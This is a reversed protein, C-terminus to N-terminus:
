SKRTAFFTQIYKQQEIFSEKQKKEENLVKFFYKIKSKDIHKKIIQRIQSRHLKDALHGRISVIDKKIALHNDLIFCARDIQGIHYLSDFLYLVTYDDYSIIKKKLLMDTLLVVENYKKLAALKYIKRKKDNIKKYVMTDLSQFLLYLDYIIKSMFAMSSDVPNLIHGNLEIQAPNNIWFNLDYRETEKRIKALLLVEENTLLHSFNFTREILKNIDSFLDRVDGGIAMMLSNINEYYLYSDNLCKNQLGMRIDDLSLTYSRIKDQFFSPSRRNNKMVLDFISFLKLNITDIDLFLIPRIKNKRKREPFYSFILWFIVGAIVSLGIPMLIYALIYNDKVTEGIHSYISPLIYATQNEETAM